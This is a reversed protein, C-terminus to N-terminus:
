KAFRLYLAWIQKFKVLYIFMQQKLGMKGIPYDAIMRRVEDNECMQKMKAKIEKSTLKGNKLQAFCVALWIFFQRILRYRCIDYIGMESLLEVEKRYMALCREFRDPMYTKSLSHPNTRYHYGVYDTLVVNEAYHYYEINFVMDESIWQRESVFQLNHAKILAMSYLTCCASIPLSDKKDPASGIMRALLEEEVSKNRFVSPEITQASIFNGELDVRDFCSKCTDCGNKQRANELQEIFNLECYDDSDIFVVYDGTVYELGTNRAMGLGQNEKHVAKVSDYAAAYEDCIAPCSDKSGDDVLIIEHAPYTQALMSDICQRLYKEVNYVPIVVSIKTM